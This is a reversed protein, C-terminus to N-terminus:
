CANLPLEATGLVPASRADCEFCLTITDLSCFCARALGRRNMLPKISIVPGNDTCARISEVGDCQIELAIRSSEPQSSPLPGARRDGATSGSLTCCRQM